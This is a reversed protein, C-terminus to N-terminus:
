EAATKIKWTIDGHISSIIKNADWRVLADGYKKLGEPIDSNEAGPLYVGVIRKGHRIAYNIEWNVYDREHTKPGVLVMVTGAWNIKPALINYKIYNENSANNPETEVISSDRILYKSGILKKLPEIYKEDGGYHSVFLNINELNEEEEINLTMIIGNKIDFIM